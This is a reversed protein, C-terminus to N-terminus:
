GCLGGVAQFLAERAQEVIRRKWADTDTYFATRMRQRIAQALEPAAEPHLHLWHDGRMATLVEMLPETGYEMAIGTFESQPCEEYVSNWMLGTLLASASSGDYISTVPTAGDGGWWASARAYAAPDNRGAFIREGLGSPGLGTHLDIWALRRARGAHQRLVQRLTRQSWTPAKGGFFMGGAFAYQGQTVATQFEGMGHKAIWHELAEQDRPSPPWQPPLLLEHLKAYPKNVPLPASFDQFNRNLDVNEQTVRRGHSFGHPNLAHIYVVALGAERAAKRWAADHLAHVQVGSGCHGEVGHCASTVILVREADAPGDRAVDMALAEGDAGPLPLPHTEVPIGAAVCAALFKQRALAYSPSFAQAADM